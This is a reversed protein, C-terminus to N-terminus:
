HPGNNKQQNKLAEYFPNINNESVGYQMQSMQNQMQQMMVETDSRLQQGLQQLQQSERSAQALGALAGGLAGHLGGGIGGFGGSLANSLGPAYLTSFSGTVTGGTRVPERQKDRLRRDHDERDNFELYRALGKEEETDTPCLVNLENLAVLYNYDMERWHPKEIKPQVKRTVLRKIAKCGEWFM